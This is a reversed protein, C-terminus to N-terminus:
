PTKRAVDLRVSLKLLFKFIHLALDKPFFQACVAFGHFCNSQFDIKCKALNYRSFEQALDTTMIEKALLSALQMKKLFGPVTKNIFIKHM